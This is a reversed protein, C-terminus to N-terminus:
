LISEYSEKGLADWSDFKFPIRYQKCLEEVVARQGLNNADLLSLEGRYARVWYDSGITKDIDYYVERIKELSNIGSPWKQPRQMSFVGAPTAVRIEELHSERLMEIDAPSFCGYDAGPHNHTLVGGRMQKIQSPTFEVSSGDGKKSFIRKGTKDYLIGNEVPERVSAYESSILRKKREETWARTGRSEDWVANDTRNSETKIEKSNPSIKRGTNGKAKDITKVPEETKVAERVTEARKAAKEAAKGDKWTFGAAEARAHQTPLGAEKSFRAYEDRLRVLRIQDTQLKDPDDVTKDILIKRKQNRIARELKRQHQTADYTTYHRGDVTVGTENDQRMQELEEPTYQPANVGMIIPFAAHGCGLTGIPRRLSRNLKQYTKDPYQKGQIPEHDPASGSHASIEWGDCGLDDHNQQSIQEQMLGMGGMINQRVAAEVTFHRGSNYDISLIGKEALGRTADRIASTYDQAGTVTRMFADDCAKQYAETLERVKGNSCVFGMTNTINTLDKRAQKVTAAVIQQISSNASFPIAHSTPMQSLDFNYGTKAAQKLLKEMEEASIDLKKQLEKKLKRQSMGLNQARWIQYAATSTLQGAESVRRAIDEVLFDTVPQMLQESADRLVDIQSATLM